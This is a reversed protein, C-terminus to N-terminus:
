MELETMRLIVHGSAAYLSSVIVFWHYSKAIWKDKLTSSGCFMSGQTDFSQTFFFFFCLEPQENWGLAGALAFLLEVLHSVLLTVYLTVTHLYKLMLDPKNGSCSTHTSHCPSHWFFFFTM